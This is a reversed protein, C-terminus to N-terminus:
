STVHDPNGVEGKLQEMLSDWPTLLRFYIIDNDKLNLSRITKSVDLKDGRLTIAEWAFEPGVAFPLMTQGFMHQYALNFAEKLSFEERISVRQEFPGIVARLNIM